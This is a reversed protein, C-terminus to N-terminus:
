KTDKGRNGEHKSELRKSDGDNNSAHLEVGRANVARAAQHGFPAAAFAADQAVGLALPEHLPVRRRGLIQRGAVHYAHLWRGCWLLFFPALLSNYSNLPRRRRYM